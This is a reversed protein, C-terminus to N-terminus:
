LRMKDNKENQILIIYMTSRGQWHIVLRLFVSSQERATQIKSPSDKVTLLRSYYMSNLFLSLPGSLM